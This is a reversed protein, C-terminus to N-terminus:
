CFPDYIKEGFIPNLLQVLFKVIHRPTFYEGLDKEGANYRKLFFEFADGKIDSEISVLELQDLQNIIDKLVRPNNIRLEDFISDQGQTYYDDFKKLVINNLYSKLENGSKNRFFNWRYELPILDKEGKSDKLDQIESMLKLFLINSFVSFREHGALLGEKRLLNNADKFITILDNRSNIVKKSITEINFADVFKLAIKEDFFSDVTEGNLILYEGSAIHIAKIIIGNTAIVIPANILQAYEKGQILATYVDRKPRKAEIVILPEDSKSKYLVYDPKLGKLNTKETDTKPQQKYVNRNNDHPDDIWGLKRLQIDILTEIDREIPELAMIFVENEKKQGDFVALM